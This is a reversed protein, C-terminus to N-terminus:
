RLEYRKGLNPFSKKNGDWKFLEDTTVKNNELGILANLMKFTSAPVYQTHARTLNNGYIALHNNDKIVIVGQTQADDFYKKITEKSQQNYASITSESATQVSSCANLSFLTFISLIPFVVKKM